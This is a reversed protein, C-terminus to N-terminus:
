VSTEGYKNLFDKIPIKALVEVSKSNCIIQFEDEYLVHDPKKITQVFVPENVVSTHWNLLGSEIYKSFGFDKWFSIAGPYNMGVKPLWSGDPKNSRRSDTKPCDKDVAEYIGLNGSIVRYFLESM